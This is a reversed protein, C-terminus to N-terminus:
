EIFQTTADRDPINSARSAAAAAEVFQFSNYLLIVYKNVDMGNGSGSDEGGDGEPLRERYRDM